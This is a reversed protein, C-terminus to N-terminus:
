RRWAVLAVGLCTVAIGALSLASPVEGFMLYELLIPHIPTLYLLTTVRAAQGRRM